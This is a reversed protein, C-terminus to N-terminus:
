ENKKKCRIESVIQEIARPRLGVCPAPHSLALLTIHKLTMNSYKESKMMKLVEEYLADFLKKKYPSSFHPHIGHLHRKYIYIFAADDTIYFKETPLDAAIKLLEKSTTPYTAIHKARRLLDPLVHYDREIYTQSVAGKHKM